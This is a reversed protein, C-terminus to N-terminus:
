RDWADLEEAPLPRLFEPPVHLPLFGLQRSKPRPLPVLMAYPVGGKAVIIQEGARVDDLLRSLQVKAEHVTVVRM